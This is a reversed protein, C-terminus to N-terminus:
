RSANLEYGVDGSGNWVGMGVEGECPDSSREGRDGLLGSSYSSFNPCFLYSEDLRRM